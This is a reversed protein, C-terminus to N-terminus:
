GRVQSLRRLGLESTLSLYLEACALADVVADHGRYAPLGARRRLRWLRLADPPQEDEAGLARQGLRLTDIAVIPIDVGHLRKIAARLFGVDLAAHHAVLVRGTLRDLTEDLVAALPAGRAQLEDDTLGHITASQGVQADPAVLLNTATGLPIRLGDLDVMGVSLIHDTHPNLGTTELDLALARLQTLPTAGPQPAAELFRRLPGPPVREAAAATRRSRWRM